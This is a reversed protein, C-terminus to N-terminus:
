GVALSKPVDRRTTSCPNWESRSLLRVPSLRGLVLGTAQEAVDPGEARFQLLLAASHAAGANRQTRQRLVHQRHAPEILPEFREDRLDRRRQMGLELGHLDEVLQQFVPPKEGLAGVGVDRELVHEADYM